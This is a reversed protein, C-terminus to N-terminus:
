CAPPRSEPPPLPPQFHVCPLCRPRLDHACAPTGYTDRPTTLEENCALPPREELIRCSHSQPDPCRVLLRDDGRAPTRFFEAHRGWPHPRAGGVTGPMRFEEASRCARWREGSLIAWFGLGVPTAPPTHAVIM